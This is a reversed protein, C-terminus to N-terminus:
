RSKDPGYGKGLAVGMLLYFSEVVVMWLEVMPERRPTEFIQASMEMSRVQLSKLDGVLGAYPDTPVHRSDQDPNDVVIGLPVSDSSRVRWDCSLNLGVGVLINGGGFRRSCRGCYNDFRIDVVPVLSIKM